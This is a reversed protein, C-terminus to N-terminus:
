IRKYTKKLQKAIEQEKILMPRQPSVLCAVQDQAVTMRCLIVRGTEFFFDKCKVGETEEKFMGSGSDNGDLIFSCCFIGSSSEMM